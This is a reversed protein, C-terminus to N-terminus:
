WAQWRSVDGNNASNQGYVYFENMIANYIRTGQMNVVEVDGTFKNLILGVEEGSIRQVRITVVPIYRDFCFGSYAM